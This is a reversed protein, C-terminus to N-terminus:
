NYWKYKTVIFLKKKKEYSNIIDKFIEIYKDVNYILDNLEAIIKSINNKFEKIKNYFVNAKNKINNSNPMIAGFSTLTHGNHEIEYTLCNDKKCDNCYWTYSEYHKNCLFYKEDYEIINHTQDHSSKCLPCLNKKCQFCRYFINNYSINKNSKKCDECKINSEDVNQIKAFDRLLINKWKMVMKVTM